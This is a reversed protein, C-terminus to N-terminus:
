GGVGVTASGARTTAPMAALERVRVLPLESEVDRRGIATSNHSSDTSPKHEEGARSSLSSGPSTPSPSRGALRSPTAADNAALIAAMRDSYHGRNQDGLFGAGRASLGPGGITVIGGIPSSGDARPPVNTRAPDHRPRGCLGAFGQIALEAGCRGVKVVFGAVGPTRRPRAGQRVRHLVLFGLACVPLDLGM